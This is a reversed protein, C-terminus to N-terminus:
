LMDDLIKPNEKAMKLYPNASLEQKITSKFGENTAGYSHGTYIITDKPLSCLKLKELILQWHTM